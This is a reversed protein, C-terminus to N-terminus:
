KPKPIPEHFLSTPILQPHRTLTKACCLAITMAAHTLQICQASAQGLKFQAEKTSWLQYFARTKESATQQSLWENEEKDFIREALASVNRTPDIKEIDLGIAVNISIACAVWEGTHSLSFNLHLNNPLTLQPANGSQEILRIEKPKIHHIQSICQRLLGRGILFQQRRANRSFKQYRLIESESLCSELFTLTQENVHSLNVLYIDASATNLESLM